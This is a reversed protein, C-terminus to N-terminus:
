KKVDEIQSRILSSLGLGSNSAIERAIQSDLMQTYIEEGKGGNMFGSKPITARMEKLLQSIFLSEFEACAKHLTQDNKDFVADKTQTISHQIKKSVDMPLWPMTKITIDSM